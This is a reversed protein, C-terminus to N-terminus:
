TWTMSKNAKMKQVGLLVSGRMAPNLLAPSTQLQTPPPSHRSDAARLQIGLDHTSREVDHLHHAPATGHWITSREVNSHRRGPASGLFASHNVTQVAPPHTAGLAHTSREVIAPHHDPVVGFYTSHEVTQTTSPHTAVLGYTSREVNGDILSSVPARSDTCFVERCFATISYMCHCDAHHM